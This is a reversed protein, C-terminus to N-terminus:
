PRLVSKSQFNLQVKTRLGSKLTWISTESLSLSLSLSLWFNFDGMTPTFIHLISNTFFQLVKWAYKSYPRFTTARSRVSTAHFYLTNFFSLVGSIRVGAFTEAHCKRDHKSLHNSCSVSYNSTTFVRTFIPSM